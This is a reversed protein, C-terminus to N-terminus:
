GYGNYCGIARLTRTCHGVSAHAHQSRECDSEVYEVSCNWVSVHNQSCRWLCAWARTPCPVWDQEQDRVTTISM